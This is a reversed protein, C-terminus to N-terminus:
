PNHYHWYSNLMLLPPIHYDYEEAYDIGCGENLNESSSAMEQLAKLIQCASACKEKPLDKRFCNKCPSCIM